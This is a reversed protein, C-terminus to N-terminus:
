LYYKAAEQEYEQTLRARRLFAETEAAQAQQLIIAVNRPVMVEKGRMIQYTKDNASVFVTQDDPNNHDFPLTIAVKETWYNRNEAEKTEKKVAM